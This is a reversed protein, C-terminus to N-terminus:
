RELKPWRGAALDELSRDENGFRTCYIWYNAMVREIYIRTQRAPIVEIFLLPDDNDRITKKWKLLNGPGANYATMMYFLNGNIFEKDMLYAMYKQGLELNLEAEFLKQKNALLSKDKTVHAATSPLLQMLGRAGASSVAEPMFSSEQRTLALVLAKDIQWGNRPKWQPVPYAINDYFWEQEGNKLQNSVLIAFSHMQFQDAIFLTTEKQKDSMNNYDGRLEKEALDKQGAHLLVIARRIAPSSLLEKIYDDKSYDNLFAKSEWNCRLSEGTQYAALIGYFTRKYRAAFRLMLEAKVKDQLKDYARFAWYAGASVLWEDDNGSKALRSFYLAAQRYNQLRWSALGAVWYAMAIQSRRMPKLTWELARKDENDLLYKLALNTSLVDYQANPIIKRLRVNELILRAKKTKGQNIARNFDRVRAALWLKDKAKLTLEEIWPLMQANKVGSLPGTLGEAGGKRVALNYIRVAQPHDSYAELWDKLEQYSSKYSKSLYKEAMVHGRLLDNDIRQMLKDATKFDEKELASFVKEYLRIDSKEILLEDFIKNYDRKSLVANQEFAWAGSLGM